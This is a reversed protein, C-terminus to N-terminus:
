GCVGNVASPFDLAFEDFGWGNNNLINVLDGNQASIEDEKRLDYLSITPDGITYFGIKEPSPCRDIVDQLEQLWALEKKTLKAKQKPYGSM